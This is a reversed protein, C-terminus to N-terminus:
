NSEDLAAETRDLLELFEREDLVPTGLARARDLKSGPEAGTIVGATKKTVGSGIAAGLLKLRQEAQGRTLSVLSGTLVFQSGALPLSRAAKRDSATNVGTQELHRLMEQMAPERLSSHVSAAVIPGLGEVVLLDEMSAESLSRMSGFHDALIRATESGVHRIGLAFILRDLPRSKSAEIGRMINDASKAGMRELTQLQASTLDYIDAPTRVLGTELVAEALSEGIGDIDMAPRSVFHTLLRFIQAPCAPNPCYAMAEGQPREIPTNCVPCREPLRYPRENGTRRAIVPGVIQPIVDGARQVIVIDGERIDKRQVDAENHLTAKSITAGSVVVPELVAYPNISGTRGVNVDIHVLRTTAQTAPFKFALAWRPERGIYGLQDELALQDVKIVVGDIEYPLRERATSWYALHDLVQDINEFRRTEPNVPLGLSDLWQM